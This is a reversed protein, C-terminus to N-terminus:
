GNHFLAFLICGFGLFGVVALLTLVTQEIYYKM